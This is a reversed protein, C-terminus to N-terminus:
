NNVHVRMTLLQVSAVCTNLMIEVIPFLKIWSILKLQLVMYDIILLRNQIIALHVYIKLMVEVM